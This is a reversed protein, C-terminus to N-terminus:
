YQRKRGLVFYLIPGIMSIGVILVLWLWKPGNTEDEKICSILAVIMLILQLVALPAVIPLISELPMDTMIIGGGIEDKESLTSHRYFLLIDNAIPVPNIGLHGLGM